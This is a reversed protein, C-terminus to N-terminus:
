LQETEDPSEAVRKQLEALVYPQREEMRGRLILDGLFGTCMAQVGVIILLAGLLLAPRDGM